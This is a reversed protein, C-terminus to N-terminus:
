TCAARVAVSDLSGPLACVLAGSLFVICRGAIPAVDLVMTGEVEQWEVHQRELLDSEALSLGDLSAADHEAGSAAEAIVSSTTSGFM